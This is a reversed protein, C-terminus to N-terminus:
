KKKPYYRRKKKPKVEVAPTEVISSKVEAAAKAQAEALADQQAQIFAKEAAIEPPTSASEDTSVSGNNIIVDEQTLTVISQAQKRAFYWIAVAIGLLVLIASLM